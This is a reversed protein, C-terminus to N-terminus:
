WCCSIYLVTDPYTLPWIETVTHALMCRSCCWSIAKALKGAAPALRWVMTREQGLCHISELGLEFAVILKHEVIDDADFFKEGL